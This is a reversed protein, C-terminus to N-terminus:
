ESGKTLFATFEEVSIKGDGNKDLTSILEKVQLEPLPDGLTTLAETL